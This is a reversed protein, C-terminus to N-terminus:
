LRVSVALYLGVSKLHHVLDRPSEMKREEKFLRKIQFLRLYASFNFLYHLTEM